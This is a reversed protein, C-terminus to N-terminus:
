FTATTTTANLHPPIESNNFSISQGVDAIRVTWAWDLLINEPRLDCRDCVHERVELILPYKLTKLISAERRILESLNPNLSTKAAKSRSKSRSKSDLSLKAISLVPIIRLHKLREFSDLLKRGDDDLPEPNERFDHFIDFL